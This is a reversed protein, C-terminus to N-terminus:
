FLALTLTLYLWFNLKSLWYVGQGQLLLKSEYDSLDLFINMLVLLVISLFSVLIQQSSVLTVINIVM